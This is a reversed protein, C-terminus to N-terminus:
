NKWHLEGTRQFRKTKFHMEKIQDFGSLFSDKRLWARVNDIYAKDMKRLDIKKGNIICQWVPSEESLYIDGKALGIPQICDWYIGDNGHKFYAYQTIGEAMPDALFKYQEVMNFHKLNRKELLEWDIMKTTIPKECLIPFKEFEILHDMHCQTPSAIIVGTTKNLQYNSVKDKKDVGFWPEGLFNLIKSYRQGMNGDAGIILIM